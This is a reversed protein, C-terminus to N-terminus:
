SQGVTVGLRAKMEEAWKVMETIHAPAKITAGLYQTLQKASEPDAKVPKEPAEYGTFGNLLVHEPPWQEWYEFLEWVEPMLIQDIASPLQKLATVM